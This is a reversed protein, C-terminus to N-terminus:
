YVISNRIESNIVNYVKQGTAEPSDATINFNNNQIIEINRSQGLNNGVDEIARKNMSAEFYAKFVNNDQMLEKFLGLIAGTLAGTITGLGPVFTGAGAGIGAGVAISKGITKLGEKAVNEPSDNEALLTNKLFNLKELLPSLKNIINNVSNYFDGFASKGGDLWITIDDLLLLLGVIALTIPKLLTKLPTFILALGAGFTALAGQTGILNQLGDFLRGLVDITLKIPNYFLQVAKSISKAITEFSNIIVNRNKVVLANLETYFKSFSPALNASIQNKLAILNLQLTKVNKGFELLGGRQESNLRIQQSLNDFEQSSVKLLSVFSSDLGTKEVLNKIQTNNLGQFKNRLEELIQFADKGGISIGLIQFTSIDGKGFKIEDLNKQLNAISNAIGEKNLTIDIKQGAEQWKQLKEIALGTNQAFKELQAVETSTDNILKSMVASAATLAVKLGVASKVFTAIGNQMKKLGGDQVDFGLSVFLSDLNM